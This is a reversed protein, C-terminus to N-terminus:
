SYTACNFDIPLYLFDYKAAFGEKDLLAQMMARTYNNPLSRLMVNAARAWRRPGIGPLSSRAPCLTSPRPRCRCVTIGWTVDAHYPMEAEARPAEQARDQVTSSAKLAANESALRTNERLLRNLTALRTNEALLKALTQTMESGQEPEQECAKSQEDASEL